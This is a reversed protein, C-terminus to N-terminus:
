RTVCTDQRTGARIADAPNRMAERGSLARADSFSPRKRDVNTGREIRRIRLSRFPSRGCTRLVGGCSPRPAGGYGTPQGAGSKLSGGVEIRSYSGKLFACSRPRVRPMKQEPPIGFHLEEHRHHIGGEQVFQRWSTIIAARIAIVNSPFNRVLKAYFWRM